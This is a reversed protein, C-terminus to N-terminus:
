VPTESTPRTVQLDITFFCSHPDHSYSGFPACPGFGAKRYLSRAAEFYDHSGTELSVRVVGRRKADALLHDLMARGLGRGRWSPATRMSKLEEHGAGVTALAGTAALQGEVYAAFLRVTSDQLAEVGLAHRSEAPATPELDELHDALFTALRSDAFDARQIEIM